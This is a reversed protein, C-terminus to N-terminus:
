TAQVAARREAFMRQRDKKPVDKHEKCMMGFVPAAKNECGPYPCNLPPRTKKAKKPKPTKAANAKSRKAKKPAKGKTGRLAYIAKAREGKQVVLREAKLEKIVRTYVSPSPFSVAEEIQARTAGPNAKLFTVVRRKLGASQRASLRQRAKPKAKPPRKIAAKAKPRGRRRAARPEPARAGETLGAVEMLTKKPKARLRETLLKYAVGDALLYNAMALKNTVALLHQALTNALRPNDALQDALTKLIEPTLALQM